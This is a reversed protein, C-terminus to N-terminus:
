MEEQLFPRWYYFDIMLVGYSLLSLFTMFWVFRVRFWLGSAVIILPYGVV